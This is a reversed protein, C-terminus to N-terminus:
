NNLAGQDIWDKITQIQQSSISGVKPMNVGTIRPDGTIKWYLYSSDSNSPEVRYLNSMETSKVNVINSYAVGASLNQGGTPTTGSHCGSLACNNTFIPQVDNAFSVPGTPGTSNSSSKSCAAFLVALLAVMISFKM